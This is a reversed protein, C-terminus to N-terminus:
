STLRELESAPVLPMWVLIPAEQKREQMSNSLDEAVRQPSRHCDALSHFSSPPSGSSLWMLGEWVGYIFLLVPLLSCLSELLGSDWNEPRGPM